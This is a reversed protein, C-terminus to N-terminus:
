NLIFHSIILVLTDVAMGVFVRTCMVSISFLKNVSTGIGFLVTLYSICVISYRDSILDILTLSVIRVKMLMINGPASFFDGLGTLKVMVM